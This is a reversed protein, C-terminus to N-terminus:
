FCENDRLFFFAEDGSTVVTALGGKRNIDLIRAQQEKSLQGGKPRKCEIGIHRGKNDYGEFDLTGKKATRVFRRNRGTGIAFCGTNLRQIELGTLEIIQKVQRVVEDEDVEFAKM